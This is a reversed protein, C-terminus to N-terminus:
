VYTLTNATAPVTYSSAPVYDRYTYSLDNISMFNGSGGEYYEFSYLGHATSALVVTGTLEISLGTHQHNAGQGERVSVYPVDVYGATSGVFYGYGDGDLTNGGLWSGLGFDYVGAWSVHDNSGYWQISTLLKKSNGPGGVSSVTRIGEFSWGDFASVHHTSVWSSLFDDDYASALNVGSSSNGGYPKVTHSAGWSAPVPTSTTAAGMTIKLRDFNIDPTTANPSVGAANFARLEAYYTSGNAFTYTQSTATAAINDVVLNLNTVNSTGVYLKYGTPAAGGSPANWTFTLTTTNGNSITPITFNTPNNPKSVYGTDVWTGGYRAKAFLPIRTTIGDTTTGDRYRLSGSTPTVWAGDKRVKLTPM